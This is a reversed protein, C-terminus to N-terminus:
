LFRLQIILFSHQVLSNTLISMNQMHLSCYTSCWVSRQPIICSEACWWLGWSDRLNEQSKKIRKGGVASVNVRPGTYAVWFLLLISYGTSIRKEPVCQSQIGITSGFFINGFAPLRVAPIEDWWVSNPMHKSCLYYNILSNNLLDENTPSSKSFFCCPAFSYTQM